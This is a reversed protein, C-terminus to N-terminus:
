AEGIAVLHRSMGALVRVHAASLITALGQYREATDQLVRAFECMDDWPAQAAVAANGHHDREMVAIAMMITLHDEGCQALFKRGDQLAPASGPSWAEYEATAYDEIDALQEGPDSAAATPGTFPGASGFVAMLSAAAALTRRTTDPM